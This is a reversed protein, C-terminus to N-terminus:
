GKRTPLRLAFVSGEGVESREVCLDGHYDRAIERAQSLGIGAGGDKTSVNPVFISKSLEEAIGCGTDQVRILVRDKSVPLSASVIIDGGSPKAEFSEFANKILCNIAIITKKANVCVKVGLKKGEGITLHVNDYEKMLGRTEPHCYAENLLSSVAVGERIMTPIDLTFVELSSILDSDVNRVLDVIYEARERSVTVQTFNEGSKETQKLVANFLIQAIDALPTKTKHILATIRQRDVQRMNGELLKAHNFHEIVYGAQEALSVVLRVDNQSFANRATSELNLVAIVDGHAEVAVALESESGEVVEAYALGGAEAQKRSEIRIFRGQAFVADIVGPPLEPYSLIEGETLGVPFKLHLTSTGSDRIAIWCVPVGTLKVAERTLLEYVEQESLRISTPLVRLLSVLADYRGLEIRNQMEKAFETAGTLDVSPFAEAFRQLISCFENKTNITSERDDMPFVKTGRAAKLWESFELGGRECHIRIRALDPPSFFMSGGALIHCHQDGLRCPAAWTIVNMHCAKFVARGMKASADVLCKNSLLCRHLLERSGKAKTLLCVPSTEQWDFYPPLLDHVERDVIRFYLGTEETLRGGIEQWHGEISM